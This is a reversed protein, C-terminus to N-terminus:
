AHASDCGFDLWFKVFHTSESGFDPWFKAFNAIHFPTKSGFKAFHTRAVKIFAVRAVASDTALPRGSSRSEVM